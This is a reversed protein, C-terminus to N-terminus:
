RPMLPDPPDGLVITTRGTAADFVEVSVAAAACPNPALPDPPDVLTVTARFLARLQDPASLIAAAPLRLSDTEGPLLSVRRMIPAGTRDAIPAGRGDVFGLTAECAQPMVPEPPDGLSVNLQAAQGRALHLAAMSREAANAPAALASVLAV